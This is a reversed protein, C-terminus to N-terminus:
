KQRKIVVSKGFVIKPKEDPKEVPTEDEKEESEEVIIKKGMKRPKPKEVVPETAVTKTELVDTQEKEIDQIMQKSVFQKYIKEADVSHVKRFVFYRNMFSVWKEDSNMSLARGYDSRRRPNQEVENEMATFMESFMGSGHPIGNKSAEETPILVFGYNEMMRVFYDFNVLYEPFTKNISDQYVHIMYGLSLEDDPFGTQDYMKTIEYIKRDDRTISISEEKRKNKLRQFVTKGDYCTGVFYGGTATCETINRLFEHFVVNNEFFYHLAFQCSAISFGDQGVGYQRYVGEKLTAREKPGNGFLARAIMRDKDTMFAKGSRINAGSNGQLFIAKTETNKDKLSNLYRACAGDMSNMINDRSVDVGFVFSLKAYIWKPLDGAKGVAFDILTQRRQAIGTILRKKVFLNHFDRLAKSSYETGNNRDETRNYYVDDDEELFEPINEGTMIMAETIPNHISHWNSNAVHYANGYNKSGSRLETTKDYRVRLPIWKWAGTLTLDYRFEVIMNEEFVEHEETRLHGNELLVNCYCANADYPSTPRFPAATYREENNYNQNPLNDNIVDEFPNIFRHNEKDFGCHLILTKYQVIDQNKELSKGEQFITHIEDKGNKDKKMSVLFDITNYQPPKWKFSEEWTSKTIPGAKGIVSSNVGTNAPTFILGDTTYEYINQKIDSLIVSCGEFISFAATAIQFNKCRIHFDCPNITTQSTKGNVVISQPQIISMAQKLINLRFKGDPTEDTEVTKAFAFERVSKGHVFYVDFAAYLNVYKNNKDYKIHEGDFLSNHLTKETTFAGTFIVNMNTDIMYIRGNDHVFLLKREGDAKDTVTYNELITPAGSKAIINKLQLTNSSPGTFDRTLVRREQYKVDKDERDHLLRMYDQLISDREVYSIPYNTGQLGGLVIRICKRLADMLLKPTSFESGVGVSKNDVELEIEYTEPNDFVTADQITYHPIPIKGTKKSSKIISLDAFIPLIPHSFRVRNIYRFIKKSDTWKNIINKSINSEVTFDQEMQYSARFNFDTFDVPRLPKGETGFPPSKQTFKIKNGNATITSPMDILKQISNTKCYEQVMDVGVIEARINSMKMTESRLDYYENQIRLIQLGDPDNTTFGAAYLQKIANDYDIKSIPKAYRSTGFRIELESIKRNKEVVPNSALYFSVMNEFDKATHVANESKSEPKEPNPKNASNNLDKEIEM